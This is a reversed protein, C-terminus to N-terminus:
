TGSNTNKEDFKIFISRATGTLFERDCSDFTNFQYFSEKQCHITSTRLVLYEAQRPRCSQVLLIQPM